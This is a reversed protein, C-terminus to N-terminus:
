HAVSDVRNVVIRFLWSTKGDAVGGTISDVLEVKVLANVKDFSSQGPNNLHGGSRETRIAREQSINLQDTMQGHSKSTRVNPV